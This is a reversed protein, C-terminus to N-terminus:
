ANYPSKQEVTARTKVKKERPAADKRCRSRRATGGSKPSADKKVKANKAKTEEAPSM